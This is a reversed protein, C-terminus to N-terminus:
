AVATAPEPLPEGPQRPRQPLPGDVGPPLVGTPPGFVWEQMGTVHKLGELFTAYHQPRVVNGLSMMSDTNETVAGPLGQNPGLTSDVATGTAGGGFASDYEDGLGFMHGAEHAAIVQQNGTGMVLTVDDGTGAYEFQMRTAANAMGGAVVQATVDTFRTRANAEDTGKVRAHVTTGAM